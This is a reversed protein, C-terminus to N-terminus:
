QANPGVTGAYEGESAIWKIKNNYSSMKSEDWTGNKPPYYVYATLGSFTHEAIDPMDGTFIVRSIGTGYFVSNGLRKLSAPLKFTGSIGSDEFAWEGIYELSSPVNIHALSVCEAFASNGIRRVSNPITASTLEDCMEFAFDCIETIGDSIVAKRITEGTEQWPCATIAGSGSITLVGDKLTWTVNDGCSGGLEQPATTEAITTEVTTEATTEVTPVTEDEAAAAMPIWAAVLIVLMLLILTKMTKM